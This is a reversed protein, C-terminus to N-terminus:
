IQIETYINLWFHEPAEHTNVVCLEGLMLMSSKRKVMQFETNGKFICSINTQNVLGIFVIVCLLICVSPSIVLLM